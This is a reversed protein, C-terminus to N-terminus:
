DAEGRLFQVIEEAHGEIMGDTTGWATSNGTDVESSGIMRGSADSVTVSSRIIDKGAMIGVLARAAGHRMRYENIQVKVQRQASGSSAALLGAASLDREVATRLVGLDVESMGGSNVYTVSFKDGPAATYRQTTQSTTSCAGLLLAISLMLAVPFSKHHM